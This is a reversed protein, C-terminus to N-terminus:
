FDARLSLLFSRGAELAPDVNAFDQGYSARDTYAQDNLNNGELRLTLFDLEKPKYETYLGYTVYGDLALNGAKQTDKNKLAGDITGGITLGLDAFTHEAEVAYVKGLPAGLYQTTDSDSKAASGDVKIATDSFTLKAFGNTWDYGVGLEYGHTVFDHKLHPGGSFTPNRVNDAETRFVDFGFTFGSHKTEIGVTYNQARTPKVQNNTYDWAGKNYIFGESLIIGGFVNSYGAKLTTDKVVEYAVSTNGSLGQSDIDTGDLGTFTQADGRLGVSWKLDEMPQLRAQTYIGFNRAREDVETTSNDKYANIDNYFDLGATIKNETDLHFDNEVKASLSRTEGKSGYPEPVKVSSVGYGITVRPDLWGDAHTMNYNFVVNSREVTYIREPAENRNTLNQLNARFPRNADDKVSEGSLEFRHNNAEHAVKGLFSRLNTGTGVTQKGLGSDYDDGKSWKFFGLAELNGVRGYMSESNTFTESNTDYSATVFGGLNKDAALLDDVDVTEYTIGGAIAGPGADAPAVSPDVRVAKLLSPDILNNGSHHFVKNNHRAGDITVALNHEEVGRVFVKQSSPIGGGVSIAAEGAYVKKVSTPNRRALTAASIYKSTARDAGDAHRDTSSAEAVTIPTLTVTGADTQVKSVVVAGDQKVEFYLGLGNTLQTLAQQASMRGQVAQNQLGRVADSSASVQLGSQVAFSNLADALSQAPINFDYEKTVASQAFGTTTTAIGGTFVLSVAIARLINKNRLNGKFGSM